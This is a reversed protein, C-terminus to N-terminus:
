SIALHFSKISPFNITGPRYGREQGGGHLLPSLSKIDAAYLLGIGKFAGIKHGSFSMFDVDLDELSFKIKGLAQVGDVHFLHDYKRVISGIEKIPNIAGTENNAFLLTVLTKTGVSLLKDLGELDLIGNEDNRLFEIEFGKKSLHKLRDLTAHHEMPSSVIRKVGLNELNDLSLVTNISETAGSTFVLGKASCGLSEGIDARMLKIKDSLEAGLAHESSPNAWLDLMEDQVFKRVSPSYFTTANHDLYIM